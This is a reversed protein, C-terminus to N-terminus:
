IYKNSNILSYYKMYINHRDDDLFQKNQHYKIDIKETNFMKDGFKKIILLNRDITNTFFIKCCNFKTIDQKNLQNYILYFIYVPYNLIIVDQDIDQPYPMRSHKKLYSYTDNIIQLQDKKSICIIIDHSYSEDFYNENFNNNNFINFINVINCLYCLNNNNNILPTINSCKCCKIPM